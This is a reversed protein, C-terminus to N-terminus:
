LILCFSPLLRLSLRLNKYSICRPRRSEQFVVRFRKRIFQTFNKLVGWAVPEPCLLASRTLYFVMKLYCIKFFSKLSALGIVAKQKQKVKVLFYFLVMTTMWFTIKTQLNAVSIISKTLLYNLSVDSIDRHM